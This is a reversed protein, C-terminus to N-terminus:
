DSRRGIPVYRLGAAAAAGDPLLNRLDVLVPTMMLERLRGLDLDRFEPWETAIVVVEAGTVAEYADAAYRVAAPLVDRAPTMGRPDFVTVHAGAAVLASAIEVAPSERIDDTDAKFTIGLVAVRRGQRAGATVGLIKDVMRHVREENASLAAGVIRSGTGFAQSTRLLAHTDKPLCAGGFGPGPKLFAPGIRPDLGLGAAVEEVVAGSAECLDAIENIFSLKTALFANSGYKILEASEIATVLVAIGQDVLPQHALQVKEGAAPDDVGIVIRDPALFDAVATGQRLFEPNSAMAFDVGARKGSAREILPEVIAECTGPPVTSRVVVTHFAQAGRLAHGVADAAARVASLEYHNGNNPTPVTLFIFAPAGSLDL